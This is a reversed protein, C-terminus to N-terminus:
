TRIIPFIRLGQQTACLKPTSLNAPTVSTYSMASGLFWLRRFYQISIRVIKQLAQSAVWTIQTRKQRTTNSQQLPFDSLLMDRIRVSRSMSENSPVLIALLRRSQALALDRSYLTTTLCPVQRSAHRALSFEVELQAHFTDM